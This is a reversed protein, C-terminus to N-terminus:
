LPGQWPQLSEQLEPDGPVGACVDRNERRLCLGVVRLIKSVIKTLLFDLGLDLLTAPFVRVKSFITPHNLTGEAPEIAKATELNTVFATRIDM